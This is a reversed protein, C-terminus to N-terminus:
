LIIVRISSKSTEPWQDKIKKTTTVLNQCSLCRKISKDCKCFMCIQTKNYILGQFLKGLCLNNFMVSFEDSSINYMLQSTRCEIDHQLRLRLDERRRGSAAPLQGLVSTEEEQTLQGKVGPYTLNGTRTAHGHQKCEKGEHSGHKISYPQYTTLKFQKNESWQGM